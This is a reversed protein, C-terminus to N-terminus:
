TAGLLPPQRSLAEQCAAEAEALRENGFHELAIAYARLAQEAAFPEGGGSSPHDATKRARKTDHGM